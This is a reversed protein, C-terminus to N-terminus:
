GNFPASPLAAEVVAPSSGRLLAASEVPAVDSFGSPPVSVAADSCGSLLMVPLACDAAVVKKWDPLAPAEPVKVAVLPSFEATALETTVALAAVFTISGPTNVATSAPRM